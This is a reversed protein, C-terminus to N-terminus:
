RVVLRTSVTEQEVPDTRVTLELTWTGPIPLDYDYSAFHGPGARVLPVKLDDIDRSPLAFRATLEEVETVAGQPTLTYIHLDVPGAKAPEVSVQVIVGAATVEASAPLAVATRGPIANVLLSTVALVALAVLIEAGLTRRLGSVGGGALQVLRRRSVAALLVIAAFLGLKMLALRGYLTTTVAAFSSTQLWGQALGTVLIVGVTPMAMGSFRRSSEAAATEDQGPRLAAVWLFTAGGLWLCVAALHLTDLAVSLGALRDAGPHGAWGPTVLVVGAPVLVLARRRGAVRWLPWVAALLVFRIGWAWGFRSTLASEIVERDFASSLGSGTAYAGQLLLAVATTVLAAIWFARLLRGPRAEDAGAPWILLFFALGGIFGLLAVFALFRAATYLGGVVPSGGEAALLREVLAADADGGATGVRFTFAGNIPHSDASVVRWTVVYAGDDLEPLELRAETDSRGAGAAGTGVREGTADFVRISGPSVVVPETFSLEVAEPAASLRAGGAPRTDRLSAHAAAPAALAVLWVVAAGAFAAVHRRTV